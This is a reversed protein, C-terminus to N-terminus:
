ALMRWSQVPLPASPPWLRRSTEPGQSGNVGMEGNAAEATARSLVSVGVGVGM